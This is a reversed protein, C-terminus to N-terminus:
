GLASGNDTFYALHVHTRAVAIFEREEPAGSTDITTVLANALPIFAMEGRNLYDSLRSRYGERPMTLDGVIRHRGTELVIREVRTDM